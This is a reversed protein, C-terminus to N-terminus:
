GLITLQPMAPKARHRAALNRVLQVSLAQLYPGAVADDLARGIQGGDAGERLHPLLPVEGLFPVNHQEAVRRAGGTGFIDHRANCQTCQFFSMNEIMGLVEINVKRFMAIARVADILAVDQPTCVVVADSTPLLQSLSLAVDGTGPPMDVILYDLDGWATDRLFQTLANHLMPGRWAVPEGEPILLGMSMVRLGEVVIPQIRDDVMMPRERTGLLHPMSPGYVDADMIGVQAGARALGLALYAAMSSKGVGGKGAGVAIVSKARLGIEGLPEPQRQHVALDVAVSCQPFERQLLAAMEDRTEHWLPASYTTLGLTVRLRNGEVAVAHIQELQVVSRGTEPDPFASLAQRVTKENISPEAM